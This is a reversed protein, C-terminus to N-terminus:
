NGKSSPYVRESPRMVPLSEPNCHYLAYQQRYAKEVNKGAPTTPPTEAYATILARLTDCARRDSRGQLQVNILVSLVLTLIVAFAAMLLLYGSRKESKREEANM